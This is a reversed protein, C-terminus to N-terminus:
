RVGAGPRRIAIEGGNLLDQREGSSRRYTEGVKLPPAKADSEIRAKGRSGEMSPVPIGSIADTNPVGNVWTTHRGSSRHVIGNITLPEADEQEARNPLLNLQRQRELAARQQPTFFLRGLPESQPWGSSIPLQLLLFLLFPKRGTM